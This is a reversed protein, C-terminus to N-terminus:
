SNTADPGAGPSRPRVGTQAVDGFAERRRRRRERERKGEREREKEKKM